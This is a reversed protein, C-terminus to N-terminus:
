FAQLDAACCCCVRRCCCCCCPRARRVDVEGCSRWCCCCHTRRALRTHPHHPHSTRPTLTKLTPTVHNCRCNGLVSSIYTNTHLTQTCSYTCRSGASRPRHMCKRACDYDATNTDQMPHQMLQRQQLMQLLLAIYNVAQEATRELRLQVANKIPPCRQAPLCVSNYALRLQTDHELIRMHASCVGLQM